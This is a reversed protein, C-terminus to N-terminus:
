LTSRERAHFPAKGDNRAQGPIWLSSDFINGAQMGATSRFTEPNRCEGSYCHNPSKELEDMSTAFFFDSYRRHLDNNDKSCSIGNAILVLLIM